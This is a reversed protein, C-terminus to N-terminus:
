LVVCAVPVTANLSGSAAINTVQFSVTGTGPTVNTAIPQGTGSYGNVNCVVLSTAAVVNTNTVTMATASTGGAATTLGTVSATFRQGTCTATTTGSCTARAAGLTVVGTGAAAVNLDRNADAGAGGLTISPVTGTAANTVVVDNVAAATQAIQLGATTTTGGIRVTGTGSANIQLGINADAGAGGSAITPVSATAGNTVIIDNVASATQAVQLGALTTTTGGILVTGTGKGALTIGVNTDAGSGGAILSPRTGAANGTVVVQNVASATNVASLSANACTSGGLCASGTGTGSFVIGINTDATQGASAGVNLLPAVGTAGAAVQLANVASTVAPTTIAAGLTGAGGGGFNTNISLILNNIISQLDSANQPGTVLPLNAAQLPAAVLSVAFAAALLHKFSM